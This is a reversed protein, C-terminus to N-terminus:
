VSDGLRGFYRFRGGCECLGVHRELRRYFPQLWRPNGNRDLRQAEAVSEMEGLRLEVREKIFVEFIAQSEDFSLLRRAQCSECSLVEFFGDGCAPSKEHSAPDKPTATM